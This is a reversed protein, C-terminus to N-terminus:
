SLRRETKLDQEARLARGSCGTEWGKRPTPHCASLYEHKAPMSPRSGPSGKEEGPTTISPTKNGGIVHLEEPSLHSRSNKVGLGGVDRPFDTLVQTLAQQHSARSVSIKGKM